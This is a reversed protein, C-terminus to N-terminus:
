ATKQAWRWARIAWHRPPEPEASTQTEAIAALRRALEVLEATAKDAAAGAAAREDRHQAEDAQRASRETALETVLRDGRDREREFDARHGAASREAKPWSM